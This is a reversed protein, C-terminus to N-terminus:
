YEAPVCMGDYLISFYHCVECWNRFPQQGASGLHWGAVMGLFSRYRGKVAGMRGLAKYSFPYPRAFKLMLPALVPGKELTGVPKQELSNTDINELNCCVPHPLAPKHNNTYFSQSRVLWSSYGIRMHVVFPIVVTLLTNCTAASILNWIYESTFSSMVPSSSSAWFTWLNHTHKSWSTKM